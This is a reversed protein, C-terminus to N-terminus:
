PGFGMKKEKEKEKRKKQKNKKEVQVVGHPTTRGGWVLWPTASGGRQGFHPHSEV